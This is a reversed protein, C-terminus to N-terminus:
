KHQCSCCFYGKLCVEFCDEKRSFGLSLALSQMSLPMVAYEVSRLEMISIVSKGLGISLEQDDGMDIWLIEGRTDNYRFIAGEQIVNDDTFVAIIHLDPTYELNAKKCLKYRQDVDKVTLIQIM